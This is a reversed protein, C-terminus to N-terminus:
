LTNSPTNLLTLPYLACYDALTIAGDGDLDGAQLAIGELQDNGMLHDSLIMFDVITCNGDGTLDGSVVLTSTDQVIGNYLLRITLGTTIRQTDDLVKGDRLVEIRDGSEILERLDAVTLGARLGRVYEDSVQLTDSKLYNLIVTVSVTQVKSGYAIEVTQIGATTSDYGSYTFGDEVIQTTGNDFSLKLRMGTSDFEEGCFYELTDPYNIIQFGTLKKERVTVEFTATKGNYTVTITQKGIKNPDYGSIQYDTVTATTNNDYHAKISLGSKNLAQGEIYSLKTPKKTITIKTLSKQSVKVEFTDTFISYQVTLTQTGLKNKEYGSVTYGTVASRSGDSYIVEVKLGDKQFAVGEKYETKKPSSVIEIGVHSRTLIDKCVSCTREEVQAKTSSAKVTVSWSGTTHGSKCREDIATFPSSKAYTKAYSGDTYYIIQLTSDAFSNDGILTVSSPIHITQITQCGTFATDSIATLQYIHGNYLLYKTLYIDGGYEGEYDSSNTAGEGGVTATMNMDDFLYHIGAHDFGMEDVATVMAEEDISVLYDMSVWGYYGRYSTYGWKGDPSYEHVRIVKSGSVSGLKTSSTSANERISLTNTVNVVYLDADPDSMSYPSLFVAAERMRRKYLAELRQGGAHCYLGFTETIEEPTYSQSLILNRLSHDEKRWVYKGLNYSFSMLADFQNQNLPIEYKVLFENLYYATSELHEKLLDSAEQETIGDPYVDPSEVYSGYGISYQKYDWYAYRQYGEFGKILELGAESIEHSYSIPESPEDVEPEQSETTEEESPTPDTNEAWVSLPLIATEALLLCALGLSLLQKKM